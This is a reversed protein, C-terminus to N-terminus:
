LDEARKREYEKIAEDDYGEESLSICLNRIICAGLLTLVGVIFCLFDLM